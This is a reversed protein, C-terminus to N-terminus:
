LGQSHVSYGHGSVRVIATLARTAAVVRDRWAAGKDRAGPDSRLGMQADSQASDAGFQQLAFAALVERDVIKLQRKQDAHTQLMKTM